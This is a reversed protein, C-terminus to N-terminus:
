LYEMPFFSKSTARENTIEDNRKITWCCDAVTHKELRGQYRDDMKKLDQYFREGYFFDDQGPFQDLHSNICHLKISM